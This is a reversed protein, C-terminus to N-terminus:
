VNLLSLSDKSDKRLKKFGGNSRGRHHHTAGGGDPATTEVTTKTVRAERLPDVHWRVFPDSYRKKSPMVPPLVYLEAEDEMTSFRRVERTVHVEQTVFIWGMSQELVPWFVPLSACITALNVELAAVVIPECGYWSPDLTPYTGARSKVISM